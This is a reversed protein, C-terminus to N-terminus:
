QSRTVMQNPGHVPPKAALGWEYLCSLNSLQQAESWFGPNKLVRNQRSWKSGRPVITSLCDILAFKSNWTMLEQGVCELNHAQAFIEMKAATMSRGRVQSNVDDCIRLAK